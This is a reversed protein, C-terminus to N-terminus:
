APGAKPRGTYPDVSFTDEPRGRADVTVRYPPVTAERAFFSFAQDAEDLRWVRAEVPGLPAGPVLKGSLREVLYASGDSGPARVIRGIGERDVCLGTREDVGVGLLPEPAERTLFAVLRGFRRRKGYHSEDQVNEFPPFDFLDHTFSASPSAPNALLAEPTVDRWSEAQKGDFICSGLIHMGASTGGVVGGRDYVGQVAEILASGKWAVYRSQQGGSFFVGEARRVIAAAAELEEPTADPAVCITQVSNFKASTWLERSYSDDPTARLVVIDGGRLQAAGTITQQMWRYGDPIHGGGGCALLGPGQPPRTDDEPNGWRPYVIVGPAKVAPGPTGAAAGTVPRTM